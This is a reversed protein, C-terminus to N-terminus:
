LPTGLLWHAGMDFGDQGRSLLRRGSLGSSTFYPSLQGAVAQGWLEHVRGTPHVGDWYAHTNPDPCVASTNATTAATGAVAGIYCPTTLDTIGYSSANQALNM